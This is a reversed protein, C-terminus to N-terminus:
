ISNLLPWIPTTLAHFSISHFRRRTTMQLSTVPAIVLGRKINAGGPVTKQLGVHLDVGVDRGVALIRIERDGDDYKALRSDVTNMGANAEKDTTSTNQRYRPWM